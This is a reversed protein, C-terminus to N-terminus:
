PPVVRAATAFRRYGSYRARGDFSEDIDAFTERMETPVLLDLAANRAFRVHVRHPAPPRIATLPVFTAEV